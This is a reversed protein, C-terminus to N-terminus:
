KQSWVPTDQGGGMVNSCLIHGEVCHQLSIKSNRRAGSKQVLNSQGQGAAEKPSEIRIGGQHDEWRRGLARQGETLARNNEFLNLECRLWVDILLRREFRGTGM